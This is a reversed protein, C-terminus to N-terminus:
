DLLTGEQRAKALLRSFDDVPILPSYQGWTWRDKAKGLQGRTFYGIRYERSGVQAVRTPGCAM